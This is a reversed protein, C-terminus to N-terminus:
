VTFYLTGGEVGYDSYSRYSLERAQRVMMPRAADFVARAFSPKCDNENWFNWNGEVKVLMDGWKEFARKSVEVSRIRIDEVRPIISKGPVRFRPADGFSHGAPRVHDAIRLFDGTLVGPYGVRAPLKKEGRMLAEVVRHNGDLVYYRGHGLHKLHLPHENSRSVEGRAVEALTRELKWPQVYLKRLDITVVKDSAGYFDPGFKNM